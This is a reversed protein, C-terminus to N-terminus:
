TSPGFRAILRDRAILGCATRKDDRDHCAQDTEPADIGDLRISKGDMVVTDGDVIRPQGVLTEAYSSSPLAASLALAFAALRNAPKVEPLVM